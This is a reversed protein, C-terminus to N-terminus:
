ERVADWAAEFARLFLAGEEPALRGRLSLSGDDEWSWAFSRREDLANAEDVTLAGRYARVIRELQAATAHLALELLDSESEPTAVRTVARVKSYSLEGRAFAERIADLGGLARAVRLHERAARPAVGCRWALWTACCGFGSQEHGRRGDFEAILLLWRCTAANIHGSLEAIEDELNDLSRKGDLTVSEFM